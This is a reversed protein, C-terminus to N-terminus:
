VSVRLSLVFLYILEFPLLSPSLDLPSLSHIHREEEKNFLCDREGYVIHRICLHEPSPRARQQAHSDRERERERELEREGGGEMEKERELERERASLRVRSEISSHASVQFSIVCECTVM